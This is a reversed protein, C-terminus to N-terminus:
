IGLNTKEERAVRRALLCYREGFPDEVARRLMPMRECSNPACYRCVELCRSGRHKGEKGVSAVLLLAAVLGWSAVYDLRTGVFLLFAPLLISSMRCHRLLTYSNHRDSLLNANNGRVNRSSIGRSRACVLSKLVLM